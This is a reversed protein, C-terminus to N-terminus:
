AIPQQAVHRQVARLTPGNIDWLLFIYFGVGGLIGALCPRAGLWAPAFSSVAFITPLVFLVVVAAWFRLRSGKDFERGARTILQRQDAKSMDKLWPYASISFYM